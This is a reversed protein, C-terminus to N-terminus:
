ATCMPHSSYQQRSTMWENLWPPDGVELYGFTSRSGATYIGAPKVEAQLGWDGSFEPTLVTRYTGNNTTLALLTIQNLREGRPQM